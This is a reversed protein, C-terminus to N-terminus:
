IVNNKNWQVQIATTMTSDSNPTIEYAGRVISTDAIDFSYPRVDPATAEIRLRLVNYPAISLGARAATDNSSEFTITLNGSNGALPWLLSISSIRGAEVVLWLGLPEIFARIHYTDRPYVTMRNNVTAIDCMFCLPGLLPHSHVYSGANLSHGFFALGHDGSNPDHEMIFPHTHFAMSPAGDANINPLCAMVGAIGIRLLGFDDPHSRYREIVPISNLGSRYHGGEREFGGTVMWKANNSFDGMGYSSGSYAFTPLVQTFGLISDVTRANLDGHMWGSDSSNFYAGWIATAEQGTSDWSFESGAPNDQVTWIMTRNRMISEVTEAHQAWQGPGESKLARLIERFVTEDMLGVSILCDFRGTNPDLCNAAYISQVAANLYFDAQNRTVINPLNRAALYLSWYVAVQHPFNFQRYTAPAWGSKGGPPLACWNPNCWPSNFACWSPGITCKDTEEYYNTSNLPVKDFYWVTMFIRWSEPDQLSFYPPTATDPKIGLLTANVYEDLLSLQGAHPGSVLKSAMGLNAGAGADDSLGVVFPRGDQLVHVNDERDWPMFSASRGFPDQFDRPLWSTSAAFSGYKASHDQLAPLAFYHVSAISGDSFNLVVRARGHAIPAVLIPLRLYGGGSSVPNGVTLLLPDDSSATLLSTGNPPLVFLSANINDAGVIVGPVALLVPRGAASLGDNIARPGGEGGAGSDDGPLVIPPPLSFCIAYSAEQGPALELFTPPNWPRPNPLFVTENLHWSPWPSRPNPWAAKHAPDDPFDLIPSQKNENWESAWAASHITWEWMGENPPTPDELIPRWAELGANKSCPTVLLTRSGDARTITAYGGDLGPHADMFSGFAAIQTNNVGGFFSDSILSFGFGGLRVGDSATSPVSLNFRILFGPKGNPAAEFSRLIQLGLPFRMDFGGSSAANTLNSLDYVNPGLPSIPEARNNDNATATSYFAWDSRNTSSLPQVRFTADGIHHNGAFDRHPKSPIYNWLPPVFSFNGFWRKDDLLGLVQIARTSNRLGVTLGDPTTFNVGAPPPGPPPPPFPPPVSSFCVKEEEDYWSGNPWILGKNPIPRDITDSNYGIMLWPLIWGFRPHSPVNIFPLGYAEFITECVSSPPNELRGLAATLLVPPPSTPNLSKACDQVGSGDGGVAGANGNYNEFAVVTRGPVPVNKSDCAAAGPIISTTVFAVSPDVIGLLLNSAASLFSPTMCSPGDGSCLLPEFLADFGVIRVDSGYRKALATAYSWLTPLLTANGLQSQGPNAIKGNTSNGLGRVAFGLADGGLDQGIADFVTLYTRIGYATAATVFDDLNTFFTVNNIAWATWHLPVRVVNVGVAAAYGLEKRVLNGDYSFWFCISNGCNSPLYAVGRLNSANYPDPLSSSSTPVRIILGADALQEMLHINPGIPKPIALNRHSTTPGTLGTVVITM